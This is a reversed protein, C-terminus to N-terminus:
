SSKAAARAEGGTVTKAKDRAKKKEVRKNKWRVKALSGRGMAGISRPAATPGM